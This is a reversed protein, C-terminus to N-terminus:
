ETDTNPDANSPFPSKLTPSTSIPSTLIPSKAANSYSLTVSTQGRMGPAPLFAENPLRRLVKELRLWSGHADILEQITDGAAASILVHGARRDKLTDVRSKAGTTRNRLYRGLRGKDVAMLLLRKQWFQRHDFNLLDAVSQIGTSRQVARRGSAGWELHICYFEGTVRSREEKYFIIENPAHWADNRAGWADYRTENRGPHTYIGQRKGHWRRVIARHLFDYFADRAAATEFLIDLAVEVCNILADPRAVLLKLAAESPQKM